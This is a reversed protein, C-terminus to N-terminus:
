GPRGERGDTELVAALEGALAMVKEKIEVRVGEEDRRSRFLEDAINLAALIAIKGRDVTRVQESIERMTRDVHAALKELHERDDRGRVSYIAGFIELETTSPQTKEADM